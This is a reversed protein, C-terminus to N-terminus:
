REREPDNNENKKFYISPRDMGGMKSLASSTPMGGLPGDIHDGYKRHLEYSRRRFDDSAKDTEKKWKEIKQAKKFKEERKKREEPTLVTKKKEELEEKKRKEEELKDLSPKLKRALFDMLGM